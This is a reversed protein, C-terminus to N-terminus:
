PQKFSGHEYHTPYEKQCINCPHEKGQNNCDVCEKFKM